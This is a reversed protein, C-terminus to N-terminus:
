KEYRQLICNITTYSVKYKNALNKISVGQKFDKVIKFETEQNTKRKDYQPQYEKSKYIVKEVVSRTFNYKYSIESIKMGNTYCDLIFDNRETILRQKLNHIADNYEPIIYTFNKGTAIQTLVKRSINYKEMLEKRDMLCYLAMKIHRVDDETLLSLKGRKSVSIKQKIEESLKYGEGGTTLNYGYNQNFSQYKSIYEQELLNINENENAIYIIEFIFNDEKYKNWANQLHINCHANRNLLIKHSKIRRELDESQGIYVKSNIKNTIKYIGRM